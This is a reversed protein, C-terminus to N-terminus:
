NDPQELDDYRFETAELNNEEFEVTYLRSRGPADMLEGLDDELIEVIEGIEGHYRHDPDDGHPIYVQVRAGIPYDM